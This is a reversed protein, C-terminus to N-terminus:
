TVGAVVVEVSVEEDNRFALVNPEDTVKVSVKTEPVPTTAVPVTAKLALPVVMVPQVAWGRVAEPVVATAVHVVDAKAAPESVMVATYVGPLEAWNEVDVPVM